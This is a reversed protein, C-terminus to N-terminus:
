NGLRRRIYPPVTSDDAPFSGSFHANGTNDNSYRYYTGDENKGWWQKPADFDDLNNHDPVAKKYVDEADNPLPTKDSNYNSKTTDHHGDNKYAPKPGHYPTEGRKKFFDKFWDPIKIKPLKGCQALGLPDVWNVPDNAVYGFLNSDGGDFGIPDKATWRGTEPDYDRAGFRVLGTDRDYLGGAFGFPQFGPNTDLLVRGWEDYDM